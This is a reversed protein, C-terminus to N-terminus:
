SYSNEDYADNIIYHNKKSEKRIWYIIHATIILGWVVTLIIATTLTM